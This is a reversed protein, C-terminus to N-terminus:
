RNRGPLHLGVLVQASGCSLRLLDALLRGVHSQTCLPPSAPRIYFDPFPPRETGKIGSLKDAGGLVRDAARRRRRLDRAPRLLGVADPGRAGGDRRRLVDCAGPCAGPCARQVGLSHDARVTIGCRSLRCSRRPGSAVNLRKHVSAHTRPTHTHLPSTM